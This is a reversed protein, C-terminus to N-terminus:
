PKDFKGNAHHRLVKRWNRPKINPSFRSFQIVLFGHAAGRPLNMWDVIGTQEELM